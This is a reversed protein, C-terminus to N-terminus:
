TDRTRPDNKACLAHKTSLQPSDSKEKTVQKIREPKETYIPSVDIQNHQLPSDSTRM